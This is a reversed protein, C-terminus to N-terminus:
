ASIKWPLFIKLCMFTEEQKRVQMCCICFMGIRKQSNQLAREGAPFCIWKWYLIETYQICFTLLSIATSSRATIGICVSFKTHLCFSIEAECAASILPMTSGIRFRLTHVFGGILVISILNVCAPLFRVVRLAIAIVATTACYKTRRFQTTAINPLFLCITTKFHAKVWHNSRCILFIRKATPLYHAPVPLSWSKEARRMLVCNKPARKMPTFVTPCSWSTLIVSIMKRYLLKLIGQRELLVKAVGEDVEPDFSIMVGLRSTDEENYCFDDIKEAYEYAHAINHIATKSIKGSPHLQDGICCGAGYTMMSAIEYKLAEPTKYGGFEGWAKHFKGTMGLYFPTIRSFYKARIPMKDYGGLSDPSRGVGHAYECSAM